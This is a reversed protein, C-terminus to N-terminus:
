FTNFKIEIINGSFESRLSRTLMIESSVHSGKREFTFHVFRILGSSLM